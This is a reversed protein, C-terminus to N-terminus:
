NTGGNSEMSSCWITVGNYLDASSNPALSFSAYYEASQWDGVAAYQAALDIYNLWPGRNDLDSSAYDVAFTGWYTEAEDSAVFVELYADEAFEYALEAYIDALVYYLPDNGLLALGINSIAASNYLQALVATSAVGAFSPQITDVKFFMSMTIGGEPTSSVVCGSTKGQDLKGNPVNLTDGDDLNITGALVGSSDLSLSGSTARIRDGTPDVFSGVLQGSDNVAYKGRVPLPIPIDPPDYAITYTYSIDELEQGAFEDGAKVIWAYSQTGTTPNFSIFAGKTKSQDLKGHTIPVTTPLDLEFQGGLIGSTDTTITGSTIAASLGVSTNFSGTMNGQSDVSVTGYSWFFGMMPDIIFTYTYWDGVLDQQSFTGGTKFYVGLGYCGLLGCFSGGTGTTVYAAHTKGSDLKGHNVKVTDGTELLFNGSMVGNADLAASGSTASLTSGDPLTYTAATFTGSSDITANGRALGVPITNSPAAIYDYGIWDGELDSTSFSQAYGCVPLVVVLCLLAGILFKKKM